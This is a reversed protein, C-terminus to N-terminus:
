MRAPELTTRMHMSDAQHTDPDLHNTRPLHSDSRPRFQLINCSGLDVKQRSEQHIRNECAGVKAQRGKEESIFRWEGILRVVGGGFDRCAEQRLRYRVLGLRQVAGGTRLDSARGSRRLRPM